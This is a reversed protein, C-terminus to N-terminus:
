PLPTPQAPAGENAPVQALHADILSQARRVPVGLNSGGFQPLIAANVAVVRGEMSLVPGGSGGHTTEADYVISGTGVQGVVGATALPAIGGSDALSRVIQWFDPEGGSALEEILKPEARAILAHIGTPYGLVIVDDGIAPTSPSLELPPLEPPLGFAQLLAVDADESAQLLSVELAQPSTPAYGVFRRMVPTFGQARAREAAQDGEWPIAVHRNTVLLGDESVLFATGTYQIEVPPGEGELTVGQPARGGPALLYRLPRGSSGDVFGYAGQLFIVSGSAAAIVRARAGAREELRSLREDTESVRSELAERLHRLQEADLRSEESQEVLESLGAVREAAEDLKAELRSARVWFTLSVGVAVLTLGLLMIRFWPATETLLERAGSRLFVASSHLWGRGEYRTCEVCDNWAEGVSKYARSGEGFLRFRLAEAGGGLEILDGHELTHTTVPEGNVLVEAGERVRLEYADGERAIEALYGSTAIAATESSLARPSVRVDADPGTGISLLDSAFRTTRGREHGSLRVLAAIKGETM